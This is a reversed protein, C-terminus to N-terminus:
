TSPCVFHRLSLLVRAALCRGEACDTSLAYSEQETVGSVESRKSVGGGGREQMEELSM